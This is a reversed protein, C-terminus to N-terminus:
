KSNRLDSMIQLFKDPPMYSILRLDQREKGQSDLFVITPVGKIEYQRLLRNYVPNAGSTIDVKVMYFDKEALKIIKPDHFTVNDLRRCPACWEAYFDIVVPTQLQKAEAVIEESYYKWEVGSGKIIWSGIFFTAMVVTIVYTGTKIRNFVPGAQTRDLWGLHIGAILIVFTSLFVHINDPLISRIYYVAMGILVWGMLKRVWLIWEGSRPLKEIRASFIALFFLPLGLGLSLTFFVLFGFWPNGTSAVMTILGLVFPGICPAAVVGMTSGMFLSGFYGAYSKSAAQTLRVPLKLEWLGFLSAAFFLLIVSIFSVVFPNQLLAGMLRGSLAAFVGLLSNTLSLGTLYFLGNFIVRRGSHGSRSGFYSVTVPILPYVCPTLNLLVGGAFIGLLAWILASGRLNEPIGHGRKTESIDTEPLPLSDSPLGLSIWEPYGQPYRYVNEYGLKVAM